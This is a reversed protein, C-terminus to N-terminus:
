PAWTTAPQCPWPGCTVSLFHCMIHRYLPQSPWRQRVDVTEMLDRQVDRALMVGIEDGHRMAIAPNIQADRELSDASIDRVEGRRRSRGLLAGSRTRWQAPARVGRAPRRRPPWFLPLLCARRSM